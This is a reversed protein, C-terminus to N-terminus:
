VQWRLCAGSRAPVGDLANWFAVPWQAVSEVVRVTRHALEFGYETAGPRVSGRICLPIEGPALLHADWLRLLDVKVQEGGRATGRTETIALARSTVRLHIPGTAPVRITDWITPQGILSDGIARLADLPVGADATLVVRFSPYGPAAAPVHLLGHITGPGELALCCAPPPAVFAALRSDHLWAVAGFACLAPGAIVLLRLVLHQTMECLM